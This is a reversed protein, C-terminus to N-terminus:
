QCDHALLNDADIYRCMVGYNNTLDGDWLLADVEYGRDSAPVAM